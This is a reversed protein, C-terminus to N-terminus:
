KKPEEVFYYGDCGCLPCVNQKTNTMTKHAVPLLDTELGTWKCKRKGCKILATGFAPYEKSM